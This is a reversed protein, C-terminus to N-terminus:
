WAGVDTRHPLAGRIAIVIAKQRGGASHADSHVEGDHDADMVYIGGEGEIFITPSKVGNARAEALLGDLAKRISRGLARTRRNDIM